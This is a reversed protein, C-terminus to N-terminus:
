AVREDESALAVGAASKAARPESYPGAAAGAAVEDILVVPGAYRVAESASAAEAALEVARVDSDPGAAAGAAVEGIVM